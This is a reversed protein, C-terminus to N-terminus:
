CTEPPVADTVVSDEAPDAIFLKYNKNYFYAVSSFNVLLQLFEWAGRRSFFNM